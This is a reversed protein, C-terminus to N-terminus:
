EGADQLADFLAALDFLYSEVEELGYSHGDEWAKAFLLNFQAPNINTYLSRLYDKWRGELEVEAQRRALYTLSQPLDRIAQTATRADFATQDITVTM